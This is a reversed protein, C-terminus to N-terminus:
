FHKVLKKIPKYLIVGLLFTGFVEPLVSSFFAAFIKEVGSFAVIYVLSFAGKLLSAGLVYICWVAYKGAFFGEVLVGALYGVAIYLIINLNFGVGGMFQCLVGALVGFFGGSVSGKFYGAGLTLILLLDPVIGFPLWAGFFSSEILSAFFAVAFCIAIKKILQVTGRDLRM